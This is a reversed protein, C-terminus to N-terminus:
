GYDFQKFEAKQTFQSFHIFNKSSSGSPYHNMIVPMRKMNNVTNNMESVALLIQACIFPTVFCVGSDVRLGGKNM